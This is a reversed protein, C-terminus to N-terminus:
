RSAGRRGGAGAPAGPNLVALASGVLAAVAGSAVWAVGVTHPARGREDAAFAEANTCGTRRTCLADVTAPPLVDAEGAVGPM